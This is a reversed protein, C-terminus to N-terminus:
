KGSSGFGKQGRDTEGLEKVEVVDADCKMLLVLQAIRDGATINYESSGHNYLKVKVEGRYNSDIVGAGTEIDHKFSLGSRPKVFGVVFSPLEVAIGTAVGASGNAPIAIDELAYLDYGADDEKQKKPLTADFHLKKAKLRTKMRFEGDEDKLFQLTMSMDIANLLAAMQKFTLDRRGAKLDEIVLANLGAREGLAADTLELAKQRSKLMSLFLRANTEGLRVSQAATTERNPRNM